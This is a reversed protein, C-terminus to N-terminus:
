TAARRLTEVVPTRLIARLGWWGAALALVAGALAGGLPVWLSATWTFEFAYRALAWGVAVAVVSALFGALLGVGLLEIRQVQRLLGSGAGVARLIAFEREREGRTATVAALLVVLGAALTFAFLFEIAAIVQGLVRQVQAIAQSMDVNTINPFEHVLANDFGRSEPARFASIYTVPVDNMEAVPFLVFFNVRMSGWDVHRLSTIRRQVLQGAIDFGLTDGLKLGLEDALGEEVSLGDAEEPTWRGAVIPNNEPREATHSLNFEREVLRQAREAEFDEPQVAKGNINVLRGRIMPFWDYRDVGAGRLAQQFAQAQEPQVNIVFRNPADPPTAQRWSDILDTRLLVLLVLSLLGVALASIQVVAYVPRASLQRTAMVLARPATAENVSARLVRVALFSAGAFLLVAAAFGGVAIGGLLLDRSAALLLAAFGLVGLGLVGLTAPKLQGVDRRIVRLPPVKALQLVPPLGFALLLTLGMGLGLLVPVPGPPPLSSEVLGALLWVFVHHVAWGLLVGLASALLGVAAFEVTYARAMNGQSLGLVRLMACDDLHRQAFGRAAIAVAVACLLAALLAVLNLFKEARGLTRQMEPRGGELSELRVGRVGPRELAEKAWRSFAAVAADPGAVALRYSVRSAPQVLGTAPLDDNRIMVRPAFSMFGSGRDPEVTLVREITFRADGLLLPQGVRLDLQVLLAADVWATGRAPIGPAVVDPADPSESVRVTGRLPYGEGVSKLAVLRAAGGQEDPARGMTPFGLSLTHRLGLAEARAAFAPDAPQDSVVVADGGILARADRALGGQLRDAFFGVATLAAVALTVAVVLLRLEGARWDRLLSTWGIRWFSPAQPNM